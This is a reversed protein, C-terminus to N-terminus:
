PATVPAIESGDGEWLQGSVMHGYMVFDSGLSWLPYTFTAPTNNEIRFHGYWAAGYAFAIGFLILWNGIIMCLLMALLVPAMNYQSEYPWALIGLSIAAVAGAGFSVPTTLLCYLFVLLFGSTGVFHVTRCRPQRHESIYYPWFESYSQIRATDEAM